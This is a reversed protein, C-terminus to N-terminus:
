LLVSLMIARNSHNPFQIARHKWSGARVTKIIGHYAYDKWESLDADIVPAKELMPLSIEIPDTYLPMRGPNKAETQDSCM